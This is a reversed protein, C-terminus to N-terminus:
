AKTNTKSLDAEKSESKPAEAPAPVDEMTVGYFNVLAPAMKAADDDNPVELVGNNFTKGFVIEVGECKYANKPLKFRKM